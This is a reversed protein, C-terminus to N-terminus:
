IKDFISSCEYCTIGDSRNFLYDFFQVKYLYWIIWVSLIVVITIIIANETFTRNMYKVSYSTDILPEVMRYNSPEEGKAISELNNQIEAGAEEFSLGTNVIVQSVLNKFYETPQLPDNIYSYLKPYFYYLGKYTELGTIKSIDIDVTNNPTYSM